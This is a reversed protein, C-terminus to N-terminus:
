DNGQIHIGGDMLYECHDHNYIGGLNFIWFGLDWILKHMGFACIGFTSWVGTSEERDLLCGAYHLPWLVSPIQSEEIPQGLNLKHM